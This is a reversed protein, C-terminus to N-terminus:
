ETPIVSLRRRKGDLGVKLPLQAIQGTRELDARVVAVTRHSTGILSAILRDSLEPCEVLEQTILARKQKRTLHRRNCNLQLRLHRRTREDTCHVTRCPYTRIGLENAIALREYGDIVAGFQDQVIPSLIGEARISDRLAIRQDPTLPPLGLPELRPEATTQM